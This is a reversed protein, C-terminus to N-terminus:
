YIIYDIWDISDLYDITDQTLPNEPLRFDLLATNKNVDIETLENGSVTFHTLATNQPVDIETLQNLDLMLHTLSRNQSLDIETLQNRALYLITLATLQEIGVVSQIEKGICVFSTAEHVYTWGVALAGSAVCESFNIGEFHLDVLLRDEVNCTNDYWYEGSDICAQYGPGDSGEGGCATLLISALVILLLFPRTNAKIEM